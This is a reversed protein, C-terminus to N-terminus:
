NILNFPQYTSEILKILGILEILEILAKVIGVWVM